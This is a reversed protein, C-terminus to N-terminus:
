ENVDSDSKSPIGLAETVHKGIELDDIFEGLVISKMTTLLLRMENPLTIMWISIYVLFQLMNILIWMKNISKNAVFLVITELISVGIGIKAADAALEQLAEFAKVTTQPKLM